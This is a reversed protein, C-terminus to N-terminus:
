GFGANGTSTGLLTRGRTVGMESIDAVVDNVDGLITILRRIVRWRWCVVQNDISECPVRRRRRVVLVWRTRDVSQQAFRRIALAAGSVVKLEVCETVSNMGFTGGHIIAKHVTTSVAANNSGLHADHLCVRVTMHIMDGANVVMLKGSDREASTAHDDMGIMAIDNGDDTM